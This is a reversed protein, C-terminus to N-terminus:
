EAPQQDDRDKLLTGLELRRPHMKAFLDLVIDLDIDTLYHIHMLALFFQRFFQRLVSFSQPRLTASYNETCRSYLEKTSCTVHLRSVIKESVHRSM